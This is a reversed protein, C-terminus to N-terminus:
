FGVQVRTYLQAMFHRGNDGNARSGFFHYGGYAAGGFRVVETAKVELGGGGRFVFGGNSDDARNPASTLAANVRGFLELKDSLSIPANIGAGLQNWMTPALEGQDRGTDFVNADFYVEFVIVALGIQGAGGVYPGQQQEFHNGQGALLSGHAAAWVRFLRPKAEAMTPLTLLLTSILAALLRRM